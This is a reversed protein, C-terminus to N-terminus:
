HSTVFSYFHTKKMKKSASPPIRIRVFLSLDPGEPGLLDLFM